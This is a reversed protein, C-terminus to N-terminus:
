EAAMAHSPAARLNEVIWDKAAMGNAHGTDYAAGIRMPMLIGFCDRRRGISVLAPNGGTHRAVFAVNRSTNLRKTVEAFDAIYKADFSTNDIPVTDVNTDPILRTWDPFTNETDKRCAAVHVPSLNEGQFQATIGDLRLSFANFAAAPLKRKDVHYIANGPAGQEWTALDDIAVFMAHGNTAVIFAGGAECPQVAVGNLYPRAQEISVFRAAAAFLEPKSMYVISM